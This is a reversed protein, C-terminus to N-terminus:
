PLPTPSPLRRTPPPKPLVLFPFDREGERGRDRGTSQISQSFLLPPQLSFRPSPTLPRPYSCSDPTKKKAISGTGGKPKMKYVRSPSSRSPDRSVRVVEAGSCLWTSYCDAYEASKACSERSGVSTLYTHQNKEKERKEENSKSAKQARGKSKNDRDQLDKLFGRFEEFPGKAQMFKAQKVEARIGLGTPNFTGEQTISDYQVILATRSSQFLHNVIMRPLRSTGAYYLEVETAWQRLCLLIGGRYGVPASIVDCFQHEGFAESTGNPALKKLFKVLAREWAQFYFFFCSHALGNLISDYGFSSLVNHQSMYRLNELPQHFYVHDFSGLSSRRREDSSCDIKTKGGAPLILYGSWHPYFETELSAQDREEEISGTFQENSSLSMNSSSSSSGNGEDKLLKTLHLM